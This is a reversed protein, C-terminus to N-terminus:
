NNLFKLIKIIEDHTDRSNKVLNVMKDLPILGNELKNNVVSIIESQEKPYKEYQKKWFDIYKQKEENYVTVAKITENYKCLLEEKNECMIEDNIFDIDKKVKEEITEPKREINLLSNINNEINEENEEIHKMNNIIGKRYRNKIINDYYFLYTFLNRLIKYLFYLNKYSNM